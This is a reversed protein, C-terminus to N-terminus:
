VDEAVSGGGEAPGPGCCPQVSDPEPAPAMPVVQPDAHHAVGPHYGVAARRQGQAQPVPAAPVARHDAPHDRGTKDPGARRVLDRLVAPVTGLAQPHSVVYANRWGCYSSWWRGTCARRITRRGSRRIRSAGGWTRCRLGGCCRCASARRRSARCRERALEASIAALVAAREVGAGTAGPNPYSKRKKDIV